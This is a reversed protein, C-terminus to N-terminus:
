ASSNADWRPPYIRMITQARVLKQAKSNRIHWLPSPMSPPKTYFIGAAFLEGTGTKYIRPRTNRRPMPDRDAFTCVDWLVDDALAEDTKKHASVDGVWVLGLSIEEQWAYGPTPTDYFEVFSDEPSRVPISMSRLADLAQKVTM